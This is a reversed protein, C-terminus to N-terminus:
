WSAPIFKLWWVSVIIPGSFSPLLYEVNTEMKGSCMILGVDYSLQEWSIGKWFTCLIIPYDGGIGKNGVNETHWEGQCGSYIYLGLGFSLFSSVEREFYICWDHRIARDIFLYELLIRSECSYYMQQPLHKVWTCAHIGVDWLVRHCTLKQHLCAPFSPNFALTGSNLKNESSYKIAEAPHGIEAASTPFPLSWWRERKISTWSAKM